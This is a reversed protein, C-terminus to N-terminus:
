DQFLPDVEVSATPWVGNAASTAIEMWIINVDEDAANNVEVVNSGGHLANQPIHYVRRTTKWPPRPSLQGSFSCPEGNVRVTLDECKAVDEEKVSLRVQASQDASPAPGIPIRFEVSQGVKCSQPL